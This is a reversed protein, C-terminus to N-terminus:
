SNSQTYRVRGQGDSDRFRDVLVTAPLMERLTALEAPSRVLVFTDEPLPLSAPILIEAQRHQLIDRESRSVPGDHFVKGFPITRAFALGSGRRCGNAAGNRDTLQVANHTLLARLPPCIYVPIDCRAHPYPYQTEHRFGETVYLMPTKPRWYFRVQELMVPDTNNLIDREGVEQVILRRQTAESRSYLINHTLIGPVNVLATFHYGFFATSPVLPGSM